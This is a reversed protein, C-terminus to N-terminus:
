SRGCNRARHHKKPPSRESIPQEREKAAPCEYQGSWGGGARNEEAGLVEAALATDLAEHVGVVVHVEALRRVVHEGGRHVHRRAAGDHAAQQRRQHVQAARQGGLGLRVM